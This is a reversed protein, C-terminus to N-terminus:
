PEDRPGLYRLHSGCAARCDSAGFGPIPVRGGTRTNVTCEPETSVQVDVVRAEPRTLLWDIHWRLAKDSRLHRRIRAAMHRRASGTYVYRGPALEHEGLRGPTIRCPTEVDVVLQYTIAGIPWTEPELM